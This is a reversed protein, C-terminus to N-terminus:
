SAAPAIESVEIVGPYVLTGTLDVYAYRYDPRQETWEEEWTIDNFPVNLLVFPRKSCTPPASDGVLTCITAVDEDFAELFGSEFVVTTGVPLDRVEEQYKFTVPDSPVAPSPSTDNSTSQSGCASLLMLAAAAIGAALHKLM